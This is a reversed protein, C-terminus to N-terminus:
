VAGLAAAAATAERGDDNDDDVAEVVVGVDDCDTDDGTTLFVGRRPPDLCTAEEEGEVYADVGGVVACVGEDDVVAEGAVPAELAVEEHLAEM